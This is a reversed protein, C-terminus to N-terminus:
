GPPGPRGNLGRRHGPGPRRGGQRPAIVARAAPGAPLRRGGATQLRYLRSYLGNARLLERHRGREVIRGRDLVIILDAGEALGLRHTVLLTTRGAMARELVAVLDAEAAADLGTMPEDLVLIPADRVLARAVALKQRQGGSLNSGAEGLVTDYGEPLRRVFEDAGAARAAATLEARTAGPRGYALNEWVTARFLIAEQPVIAVQARLSSLTFDRVDHGDILVRGAQPDYLRLIVGMLTTKGAGTPGVIAVFQGPEVTFDVGKLVPRAADYGFTVQEFRVGGRFRPAPRAGPNERVAPAEALVEAIRELCAAVKSVQSSLRSVARLPGYFDRTYSIFVLLDGPSLDGSLVRFTGLVVVLATGLATSLDVAWAFAAGLRALRIGATLVERSQRAFHDRFWDEQGLAQVVRIAAFAEQAVSAIEGEQERLRRSGAKFRGWYGAVVAALLPLAGLVMVALQWDLALMVGVMGALFLIDALSKMLDGTLLEQAKEVDATVRSVLDDTRRRHHQTLSLRQIHGFLAVRLSFAMKQGAVALFSTKVFSFLGDGGAVAVVALGLGVVLYLDVRGIRDAPLIVQDFLLKLPWPRVLGFATSALLAFAAGILYPWQSLLCPLIYRRVM